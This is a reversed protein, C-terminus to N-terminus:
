IKNWGYIASETKNVTYKVKCKRKETRNLDSKRVVMKSAKKVQKWIPKFEKDLIKEELKM